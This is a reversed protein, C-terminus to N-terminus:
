SGARRRAAELVADFCEVIPRSSRARSLEAVVYREALWVARDAKNASSCVSRAARREAKTFNAKAFSPESWFVCKRELRGADVLRRVWRAVRKSDCDALVFVLRGLQHAAEIAVAAHELADSGDLDTVVVEHRELIRGRAASIAAIVRRAAEREVFWTVAPTPILGCRAAVRARRAASSRDVDAGLRARARALGDPDYVQQATELGDVHRMLEGLLLALEKFRHAAFAAGELKEREDWRVFALLDAWRRLPDSADGELWAERVFAHIAARDRAVVEPARVRLAKRAWRYWAADRHAPRELTRRRASANRTRSSDSNPDHHAGRLNPGVAADALVLAPMAAYFRAQRQRVAPESAVSLERAARQAHKSLDVRRQAIAERSAPSFNWAAFFVRAAVDVLWLQFPHYYLETWGDADAASGHTSWPEYGTFSAIERRDSGKPSVFLPVVLRMRHLAELVSQMSGNGLHAAM